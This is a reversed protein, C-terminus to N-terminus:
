QASDTPKHTPSVRPQTQPTHSTKSSPSAPAHKPSAPPAPSVPPSSLSNLSYTLIPSLANKFCPNSLTDTLMYFPIMNDTDPVLPSLGCYMDSYDNEYFELKTTLSLSSITDESVSVPRRRGMDKSAGRHPNRPVQVRCEMLKAVAFLSSSDRPPRLSLTRNERTLDACKPARHLRDDYVYCTGRRLNNSLLRSNASPRNLKGPPGRSSCCIGRPEKSRNRRLKM